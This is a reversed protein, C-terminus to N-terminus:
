KEVAKLAALCIAEPATGGFSVSLLSHDYQHEVCVECGGMDKGQRINVYHSSLTKNLKEVVEWAAAIDTSYPNDMGVTKLTCHPFTSDKIGCKQCQYDWVNPGCEHWDHCCENMVKEAILADLERGAKM